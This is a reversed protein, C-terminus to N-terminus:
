PATRKFVDSGFVKLGAQGAYGLHALGFTDEVYRLTSYHNYPESSVTGPKIFPSLLVAGIRGGGPGNMGALQTSGPLGQEGCCATSADGGASDSEDFTIILLGDKKFAPSSTIQPVWKQLFADIAQFGGLGGDVCHADHGDNCLNPTIFVYNPTTKISGLDSPLKDLLESIELMEALQAVRADIEEPSLDRREELPFEINERVTLSDFLAGSQFVM